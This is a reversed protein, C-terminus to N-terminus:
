DPLEIHGVRELLLPHLAAGACVLAPQRPIPRNYVFGRGKHDTVRGGAETCILDGAAVDWDHKGSPALCADFTGAAVLAMRYALSNRTEIRMDPWPTPWSPHAFMKADGLMACAELGDCDSARIQAGNLRAGGGRVAEYTESLEPAVIVAAAPLGDEIVAICVSYWPRGKLYARTGDIPDVIFLRSRSLRAPDDATEESLWGYDPRAATLREKLLADLALDANTVPSNGPKWAVELGKAKLDLAVKGAAEAAEVILGLDDSM